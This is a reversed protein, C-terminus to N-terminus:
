TVSRVRNTVSLRVSLRVCPSFCYTERGQRPSVYNVVLMSIGFIQFLEPLVAINILIILDYENLYIVIVYATLM